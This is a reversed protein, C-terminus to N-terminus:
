GHRLADAVDSMIQDSTRNFARRALWGAFDFRNGHEGDPHVLIELAATTRVLHMAYAVM